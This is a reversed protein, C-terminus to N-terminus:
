IEIIDQLYRYDLIIEHENRDNIYAIINDKSITAQYVKGKTFRNAFFEATNKDTTWSISKAQRLNKCGRYVIITESLANYIEYDDDTMLVHKDARSIWRLVQIKTVNADHNIVEIMTWTRALLNSCETLSVANYQRLFKLYTLKYSKRVLRLIDYVTECKNITDCFDSLYKKYKDPQELANFLNEGDYLIASEFFPHQIVIPSFDTKSLPLHALM